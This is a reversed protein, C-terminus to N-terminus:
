PTPKAALIRVSIGLIGLDDFYNPDNSTGTQVIRLTNEGAKLLGAPVTLSIREPTENRSSIHRNLYDFEQGNLFTKTRLEGLRVLASFQLGNAEGVVQVVDLEVTATQNQAPASALTFKRELM